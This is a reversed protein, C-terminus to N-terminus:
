KQVDQREARLLEVAQKVRQEEGRTVILVAEDTEVVMTDNLGIAVVPRGSSRILSGSCTDAVVNGQVVNGFEGNSLVEHLAGWSGVDSWGADLPVVAARDTKEMVAYDISDAPSTLFEAGLQVLRGDRAAATSASRCASHIEPALRELESLFSGAGFVFMGSNWLYRGTEIYREATPADPKEVFREVTFWENDADGREIYGYGTEARTPVIGFTVLKGSRAASVAKDIAVRLADVDTIVHDAPLVLL